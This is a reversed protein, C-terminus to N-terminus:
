ENFILDKLTIETTENVESDMGEGETKVTKLYSYVIPWGTGLDICVASYEDYTVTIKSYIDDIEALAGPLENADLTSSLLKYTYAKVMPLYEDSDIHCHTRFVVTEDDSEEEDVWFYETIDVVDGGGTPQFQKQYHYEDKIDYRGGHYFFLPAVYANLSQYFAQETCLISSLSEYLKEKTMGIEAYEKRVNKDKFMNDLLTSLYSKMAEVMEEVKIYETIAGFENTTFFLPTNSELNNVIDAAIGLDLILQSDFVDSSTQKLTYSHETSDIVEYMQTESSSHEVTKEGKSDIKEKTHKYEYVAKDGKAWYACINVTSDPMMQGHCLIGSFM